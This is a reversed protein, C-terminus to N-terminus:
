ECEGNPPLQSYRLVARRLEAPTGVDIYRGAEFRRTAVRLGGTWAAEIVDGLYPERGHVTPGEPEHELKEQVWGRLFRTFRPGWAALIWTHTLDTRAPKIELGRFEGDAGFRVMDMKRPEVAPFLGLAVDASSERLEALLSALCGAPEFAIDPFGFVVLSGEALATASDVSFPVGFHNEAFAYDIRIGAREGQGYYAAIDTKEERLIFVALEAGATRMEELLFDSVVRPGGYTGEDPVQFGIPLIEKSCPLRGLRTARGAAPIIGVM